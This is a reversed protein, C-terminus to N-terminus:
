QHTVSHVPPFPGESLHNLPLSFPPSACLMEDGGAPASVRPGLGMPALGCNAGMSFLTRLLQLSLFRPAALSLHNWFTLQTLPLGRGRPSERSLASEMVGSTKRIRLLISAFGALIRQGRRGMNRGLRRRQGGSERLEAQTQGLLTQVLLRAWRGDYPLPLETERGNRKRSRKRSRKRKAKM